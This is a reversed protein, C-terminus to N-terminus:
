ASRQWRLLRPGLVVAALAAFVFFSGAWQWRTISENLLLMGAALGIVPVGLSFPAVRNVPHRKLLWTWLAYAAITAFWGLYAV